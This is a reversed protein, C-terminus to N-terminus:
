APRASKLAVGTAFAAASASHGSPSSPTSPYARLRRVVPVEDFGPRGGDFFSKIIVDSILSAVVGLGM